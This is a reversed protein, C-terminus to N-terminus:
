VRDKNKESDRCIDRWEMGRNIWVVKEKDRWGERFGELGRNLGEVKM